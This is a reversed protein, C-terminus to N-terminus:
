VGIDPLEEEKFTTLPLEEDLSRGPVYDFMKQVQEGVLRFIDAVPIDNPCAETCLGCGVCSIVMHNLRTLHFLLTDNPMRLAGKRKAWGLYKEAEFEFVPSDFFCEKCYCLACATKCNHCNICTALTAMLKDLGSVEERTQKLLAEKKGTREAVLKSIAPQRAEAKAEELGLSQMVQEGAPTGAVLLINKNIDAGLLGITLDAGMPVPYECIQCAKRLMPAEKGAQVRGLLDDTPSAGERVSKEYDSVSYTGFCDVGILLLKDLSAQKLKVLEVLARLECPRLVVGLREPSPSIMTIRSVLRATNVPMVPALPNATKLQEPRSVITPVVNDGTPLALPVLLADVLQKELLSSLFQRVAGLAGDKGTPLIAYKEM